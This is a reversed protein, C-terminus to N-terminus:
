QRPSSLAPEFFFSLPRFSYFVSTFPPFYFSLLLPCLQFDPFLPAGQGKTKLPRYRQSGPGTVDHVSMLSVLWRHPREHKLAVATRILKFWELQVNVNVLRLALSDVLCHHVLHQVFYVVSNVLVLARPRNTDLLLPFTSWCSVGQLLRRYATAASSICTASICRMLYAKEEDIVRSLVVGDKLFISQQWTEESIVRCPPLHSNVTIITPNRLLGNLLTRKQCNALTIRQQEICENNTNKWFTVVSVQLLCM